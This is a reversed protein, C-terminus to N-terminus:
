LAASTRPSRCYFCRFFKALVPLPSTVETRDSSCVNQGRIRYAVNEDYNVAERVLPNPHNAANEFFKGAVDQRFERITPLNAERHLQANRVFWPANFAARLFKNQVVQLKQLQTHAVNGWVAVSYMMAPRIITRYITIKNKTSLKSRRNVLSNLKDVFWGSRSNERARSSRQIPPPQRIIGLYKVETKWPIVRNFMVIEGVPRHLRRTFLIASSKDPNV